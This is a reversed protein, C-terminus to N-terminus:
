GKKVFLTSGWYAMWPRAQPPLTHCLVPFRNRSRGLAAFRTLTVFPVFEVGSATTIQRREQASAPDCGVAVLLGASILTRSAGTDLAMRIIATANPGSIEARVIVLGASRDFRFRM